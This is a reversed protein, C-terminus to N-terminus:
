MQKQKISSVTWATMEVWPLVTGEVWSSNKVLIHSACQCSPHWVSLSGRFRQFDWAWLYPKTKSVMFILCKEVEYNALFKFSESIAILLSLLGQVCIGIYQLGMFEVKSGTWSRGPKPRSGLESSFAGLPVSYRDGQTQEEWKDGERSFIHAKHRIQM